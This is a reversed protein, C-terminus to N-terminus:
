FPYDNQEEKKAQKLLDNYCRYFLRELTAPDQNKIRNFVGHLDELEEFEEASIAIEAWHNFVFLEEPEGDSDASPPEGPRLIFEDCCFYVPIDEIDCRSKLMIKRKTGTLEEPIVLAFKNEIM